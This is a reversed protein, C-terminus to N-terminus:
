AARPLADRYSRVSGYRLGKQEVLHSAFFEHVLTGLTSTSM